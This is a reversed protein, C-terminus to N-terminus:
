IRGKAQTPSDNKSAITPALISAVVATTWEGRNNLYTGRMWVLATRPDKWKPVIPRLNDASSNATLAEWTWKRGSDRARGRFLERHRKGDATSILPKGSVPHADTSIYVIDPNNPDLAALGTYDDEFPYLRTGAYAIERTSWKSGDWRGYHFRHDMGGQRPPLGRGDKQVSFVFYPRQRADLELDIVWAVNDPDGKFVRTMDWANLDTELSTSLKGRPKGDSHYVMGDRVYGHYVSNDFNRPHDETVVFHITEQGDHAYKFYPSYGGRGKLLHGGYKWTRGDDESTMYNPEYGPGRFFNLIKGSSM